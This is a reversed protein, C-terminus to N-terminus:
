QIVKCNVTLKPQACLNGIVDRVEVDFRLDKGNEVQLDTDLRVILEAPAGPM